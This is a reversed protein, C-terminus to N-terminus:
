INAMFVCNVLLGAVVRILRLGLGSGGKGLGVRARIEGLGPGETEKWSGGLWQGM